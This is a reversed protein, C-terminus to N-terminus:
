FRKIFGFLNQFNKLAGQPSPALRDNIPNPSITESFTYRFAWGRGVKVDMGVPVSLAVMNSCFSHPPLVAAGQLQNLRQQTSSLHVLGTGVSLFPRLRSDRKRFYVLVTGIVGQQTSGRIEQYGKQGGNVFSASTLTLENSNWIYNGQVSFYESLNIGLLLELAGGNKPDYSSFASSGPTLVSRSDGSLSSFGGLIGAYVQAQAPMRCCLLLLAVLAILLHSMRTAIGVILDFAFWMLRVCFNLSPSKAPAASRNLLHLFHPVAFQEGM